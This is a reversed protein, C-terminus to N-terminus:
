VSCSSAHSFSNSTPMSLHYPIPKDIQNNQLLPSFPLPIPFPVSPYCEYYSSLFIIRRLSSSTNSRLDKFAKMVFENFSFLGNLLSTLFDLMDNLMTHFIKLSFILFSPFVDVPLKMSYCSCDFGFQRLHYNAVTTMLLLFVSNLTCTLHSSFCSSCSM